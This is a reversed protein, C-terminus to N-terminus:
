KQYFENVRWGYDEMFDAKNGKSKLNDEFFCKVSENIAELKGEYDICAKFDNETFVKEGAKSGLLGRLNISTFYDQLGLVRILEHLAVGEKCFSLHGVDKFSVFSSEGQVNNYAKVTPPYAGNDYTGTQWVTPITIKNIDSLSSVSSMLAASKIDGRNLISEITGYGGMSHSLTGINDKDIRGYFDSNNLGLAFNLSSDVESVRYKFVDKFIDILEPNDIEGGLIKDLFMAALQQYTTNEFGPIQRVHNYVNDVDEFIETFNGLVQWLSNDTEVNAYDNHSPAVVFYGKKAIGRLNDDHMKPSAFYGHSFGILPYKKNDMPYYLRTAVDKTEGDLNYKVNYTKQGIQLEAPSPCANLLSASGLALAGKLFDRRSTKM